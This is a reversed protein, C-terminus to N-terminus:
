IPYYFCILMYYLSTIGEEDIPPEALKTPKAPKRRRMVSPTQEVFLSLNRSPTWEGYYPQYWPAKADEMLCLVKNKAETKDRIESLEEEISKKLDPDNAPPWNLLQELFQM